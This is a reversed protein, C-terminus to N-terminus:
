NLVCQKALAKVHLVGKHGSKLFHKGQLVGEFTSRM